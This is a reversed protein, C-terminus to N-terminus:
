PGSHPQVQYFRVPFQAADETFESQGDADAVRNGLWTWHVLDLSGDFRNTIAPEFVHILNVRGGAQRTLTLEAALEFAGIDWGARM